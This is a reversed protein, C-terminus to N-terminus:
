PWLFLLLSYLSGDNSGKLLCIGYYDPIQGNVELYRNLTGTVIADSSFDFLKRTV